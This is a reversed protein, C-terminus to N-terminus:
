LIRRRFLIVLVLPRSHNIAFHGSAKSRSLNLASVSYPCLQMLSTSSFSAFHRLGHDESKM